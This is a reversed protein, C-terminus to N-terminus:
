AVKGSRGKFLLGDLGFRGSGLVIAYLAVWLCGYAPLKEWLEANAKQLFIAVLMTVAIALGALRTFLGVCLLGGGVVEALVAAWAFFGPFPFGLKAVDSVFWEPAPFKSWGFRAALWYGVCIRPLMLVLDAWLSPMRFPAMLKQMRSPQSKIGGWCALDNQAPWSRASQM